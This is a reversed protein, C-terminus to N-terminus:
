KECGELLKKLYHYYIIDNSNKTLFSTKAINNEHQLMRKTHIIHKIKGVEREIKTLRRGPSSKHKLQYLCKLREYLEPLTLEKIKM